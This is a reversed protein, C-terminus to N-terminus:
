KVPRAAQESDRRPSAQSKRLIYLHDSDSLSTIELGQISAARFVASRLTKAPIGLLKIKVASDEKLTKLEQLVDRILDHHKSRRQQHLEPLPVIEVQSANAVNESLRSKKKVSL